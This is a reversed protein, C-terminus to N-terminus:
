GGAMTLIVAAFLAGLICAAVLICGSIASSAKLGDGM